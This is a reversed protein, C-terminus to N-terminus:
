ELDEWNGEEGMEQAHLGDLILADRVQGALTEELEEADGSLAITLWDATGYARVRFLTM